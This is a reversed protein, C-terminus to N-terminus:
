PKRLLDVALVSASAIATFAAQVIRAVGQQGKAEAQANELAHIATDHEKLDTCVTEIQKGIYQIDKQIEALSVKSGNGGQISARLAEIQDLIQENTVLETATM